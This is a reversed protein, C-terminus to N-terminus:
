LPSWPGGMRLARCFVGSACPKSRPASFEPNTASEVVPDTVVGRQTLHVKVTVEGILGAKRLKAPYEPPPGVFPKPNADDVGAIRKAIMRDLARERYVMPQHSNFVEAGRTFIHLHYKGEGVSEHLPLHLEIFEAKNPLLDGVGYYYIVKGAKARNLELVFFVDALRYPSQLRARIHFTNNISGVGGMTLYSSSVEMNRVSVFAPYYEDVPVLGSRDERVEVPKGDVMITTWGHYIKTVVYNKGKYEVVLASQAHLRPTFSGCTLAASACLIFINRRRIM